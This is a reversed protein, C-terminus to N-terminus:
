NGADGDGESSTPGWRVFSGRISKWPEDNDNIRVEYRDNETWGRELLSRDFIALCELNIVDLLFDFHPLTDIAVSLFGDATTFQFETEIGFTRRRIITRLWTIDESIRLLEDAMQKRHWENLSITRGLL